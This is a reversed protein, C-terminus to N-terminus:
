ATPNKSLTIYTCLIYCLFNLALGNSSRVGDTCMLIYKNNQFTPPFPQRCRSSLLQMLVGFIKQYHWRSRGKEKYKVFFSIHVNILLDNTAEACSEVVVTVTGHHDISTSRTLRRIYIYALRLQSKIASNPHDPGEKVRYLPRSVVYGLDAVEGWRSVLDVVTASGHRDIRASCRLRRRHMYALRLHAM